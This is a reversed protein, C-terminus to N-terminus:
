SGSRSESEKALQLLWRRKRRLSKMKARFVEKELAMEQEIQRAKEEFDM